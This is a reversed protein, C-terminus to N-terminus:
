HLRGILFGCIMAFAVMQHPLNRAVAEAYPAWWKRPPLELPEVPALEICRDAAKYFREAARRWGYHAITTVSVADLLGNCIMEHKAPDFGHVAELQAVVTECTLCRQCL